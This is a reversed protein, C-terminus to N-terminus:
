WNRCLVLVNVTYYSDLDAPHVRAFQHGLFTRVGYPLMGPLGRFPAFEQVLAVSLM